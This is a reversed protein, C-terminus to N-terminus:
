HIVAEIRRNKERGSATDNDAIPNLDGKGVAKIKSASAGYQILLARVAQARQTSLALNKARNGSNDTYGEITVSASPNSKLYDSFRKVSTKSSSTIVASNSEFGVKINQRKTKTFTSKKAVAAVHTPKASQIGADEIYSVEEPIVISSVITCGHLDIRDGVPTHPCNDSGDAVGDGDGDAVIPKQYQVVQQPASIEPLVRANKDVSGRIVEVFLPVDIGLMLAFENDENSSGFMQLAKFESVLTVRDTLPYRAGFGAQIFPHSEFVPTDDPVYEYGLGGLLYPQFSTRYYSNLDVDYIGNIALQWLSGVGGNDDEDISIYGLDIRPKVSSPVDFTLDTFISGNEFTWGDENDISTLGLKFGVQHNEVAELTGYSLLLLLSCKLLKKM